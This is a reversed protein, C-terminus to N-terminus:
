LILLIYAKGYLPKEFGELMKNEGEKMRYFFASRLQSSGGMVWFVELGSELLHHGERGLSLPDLELLGLVVVMEILQALVEGSQAVLGIQHSLGGAPEDEAHCVFRRSTDAARIISRCFWPQLPELDLDGLMGIMLYSKDIDV